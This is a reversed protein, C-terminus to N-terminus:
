FSFCFSALFGLRLHSSLVFNINFISIAHTHVANIYSLIPSLSPVKIGSCDATSHQLLYKLPHSGRVSFRQEISNMLHLPNHEYECMGM